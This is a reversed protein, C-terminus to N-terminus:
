LFYLLKSTGKVSLDVRLQGFSRNNFHLVTSTLCETYLNVLICIFICIRLHIDKDADDHRKVLRFKHSSNGGSNGDNHCPAIHSRGITVPIREGQRTNM